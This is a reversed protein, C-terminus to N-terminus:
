RKHHKKVTAQKAIFSLLLLAMVAYSVYAIAKFFLSSSLRPVFAVGVTAVGFTTAASVIGASSGHFSSM